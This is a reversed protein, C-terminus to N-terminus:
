FPSPTSHLISSFRHVTVFFVGGDELLTTFPKPSLLGYGLKSFFCQFLVLGDQSPMMHALFYLCDLWDHKKHKDLIFTALRNVAKALRRIRSLALCREWRANLSCRPSKETVGRSVGPQIPHVISSLWPFTFSRLSVM